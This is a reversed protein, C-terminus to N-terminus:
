RGMALPRVAPGCPVGSIGTGTGGGMVLWYHDDRAFVPKRYRNGIRLRLRPADVSAPAPVRWGQLEARDALARWIPEVAGPEVLLPVRSNAVRDNQASGFDPYLAVADGGNDFDSRNGTDLYTEAPLGEALVVDHHAVEVHYYTISSVEVQRITTRNILLKIPVLAGRLYVAHDPSLYLDRRPQGAEFAGAAILVLWVLEPTPRRCCDIRRHGIWSVCADGGFASRVTM